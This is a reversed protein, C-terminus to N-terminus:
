ASWRAHKCRGQSQRDLGFYLDHLSPAGSAFYRVSCHDPNERIDERDLVVVNPGGSISLGAEISSHTVLVPARADELMFALRESPYDPDLPLYAGGAKLIGLLGVMMELSREVCLGVVVEPGVGLGRLHHALQNARADLARYSLREAGFVVATAEPTRAAQAGFLEPLTASPISRATDNWQRLITDREEPTLIELRGLPREPEAVAAELLRVLRGGLAEISARDFLDTAYEIAGHIGAPTGDAAREEGLNLSLDFKAAASSVPELATDLGPLDLQVPANNQFALMVQFLPHRSLSRAPNLDEVLREFPLEQHSYALLNGARVRGILERFSPDGSTDTRLVLTNVFFGVLDDLASDTRGAIPSGIPIDDGAGLRTLLGALGAQLVMFLSAGSDRALGLLAEHLRGPLRLPVSDGRYSAAAPRVRDIPLDIQEPLGRLTERWFSLQRALASEAESEDGLAARQWLTYDAYQVPLASFGPAVGRCRGGYAAALDRWLPGLSWGDGAIHHLVLLLVHTQAGVAFLHARLPLESALDFGQGAARGLAAALDAEEVAAELLVPRSAAGDLIQQRPVGVEDPFITRLSEHREVVDGLAATLAARDLAGRLRVAMVINYPASSGELRNLFWLRRQAYSLPIEAPRAQARLPPRAAQAGAVRRSLAAVTPAEFLSRIGIEADLMVRIRSILRTALLSHGGLDFFNDDIGVRRLGLVEAFLACLIEEQPSRPERAAAATVEPAPLARRDLKGNPTLPLRDLVVFCSPVMYDPLWAAVHERLAAVDLGQDAGAVVYAVLRKGGPTDERAIVAAQAVGAHRTLVAEIEGPEIRFGRLKVQADARGLFELVGDPRWRALDGSRYMRSGAPGYPAAVFREATLGARGLYGRGLGAGAIYLEGAVGVPVAALGSDLVYVQTNSIPRGIPVSEGLDSARSMPFCVSFTTGETPGYGNIIEGDHLADIVQRVHPVSLVDGGALLKRVPALASLDEDVVQHLVAATLWLVSIKADAIVRKLLAMDFLRDPYIILKAGNILAGWIEFTSADFALPALQLLVDDPMLEVYNAERVLRVVNHHAVVVGKPQGTSGSTYIVYAANHPKLRTIPPTAPCAAIAPWDADLRVLRTDHPPLREVLASQTVLVPARADELMFALREAPYDPDLPLYAGGAKLIGLLGVMMELSREVCLGVVVEPGVGLGRLHHALQNARADLARYSLREDGFVVATADPTRAAQAGFLEPLTASPISRATDNWQRLITDREEPTLIELRGLPREPEAVAAELLRVLREVMAHATAEDFLDARYDLRLRLRKGPMGILMAPYHTADHGSVQSLRLGGPEEALGGRDVPYNEFVVLTDFLEGVGALGQIEALGLHPHAMLRSQSEQVARLLANLPQGPPLKVRLPLTNIFLGVMSEIGAIEPPRGAVTVGFVVDDRGSLRGLLIAWAAQIYTNLTLGQRRAQQTLAATLADSLERVIQEPVLPARARDQPALRTGEELGALAEQWAAVAAARDQAALWALYDRYPTVRPLADGKQAYLTLLEHVLVPMSWGDMLIHHNTIVLRHEQAGLRILAFRVLPPVALDFRAARDEALICALREERQSRDLDSLDISRWRAEAAPVIVQVPRSLGETQFAARLSAHRQLVGQAAAQLVREDLPGDLGLVLQTTYVDPAQADYLAHFLLGEQLPSPPLIDEIQAYRSELREIEGQALAVLPLDSPSRGGADPTAAHRVLAELAAFWGRALDDVAEEGILARAFSWNATLTAGDPGDLTFANLELAHALPMAPDGGRGLAGAEPAAAWDAESPAAFRGLYNFALPPAAFGALEAATRPNLYRLLGYGLGHDPVARLQEKIQKVARGLAPGGALADDLDVGGADLRVPYLSTFWGVTRSLDVDGFIEERGHGELDILVAQGGAGGRGRRRGWDVAAVVLASLLVDNIGGHFAAAVRTLLAGTVDAPLTLTLHGATGATDRVADLGGEILALSPAGLMDCWFSLEGVRGSDQAHSLLRQAWRRLSTSRPGLAPVQGGAIARWAAALDPVLIRWSVGDVALHHITLLLLGAAAAGADFWVAQVMVGCSPSLADEALRAQESLRARLAGADLGCIDIRRLCAAARVAGAPAVALGWGGKDAQGILRLRLADHHDLMCQLAAVLDDERLGAPVRLLMAQHFRDLVGGPQLGDRELLWRMIPTPPLAGTAVDPLASGTEEMLKSAGALAAVTQHQFVARPTIVLGAKRARSVLQISMISDGGLAFFNDDIGVRRLGLVEAFLACLIEEQPSRPERAAAATVEPAPLARRDLKGNPTLPLRDLVVFCSPVMYDPLWAAVHERLAAADLSGDAGAVVYAVLRKGGPTDERAIVAAQAVGAHRTLVAEIEGPEIRFGRLKVQADARGLFELVGDPRWRALDGSRYMRSGAPGYPAAVFREATLGARGLYGRGLGAGAIYLEGAVGM